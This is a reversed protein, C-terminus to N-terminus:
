PPVYGLAEELSWEYRRMAPDQTFNFSTTESHFRDVQIPARYSRVWLTDGMPGFGVLRVRVMTVLWNSGNYLDLRMTGSSGTATGTVKALEVRPLPTPPDPDEEAAIWQMGEVLTETRGTFRDTRTMVQESGFSTTGYRFRTPWVFLALVVVTSAVILTKLPLTSARIAPGGSRLDPAPQRVFPADTAPPRSVLPRPTVDGAHIIGVHQPAPMSGFFASRANRQLLAAVAMALFCLAAGLIASGFGPAALEGGGKVMTWIGRLVWAGGLFVTLSWAWPKRGKLAHAVFGAAILLLLPKTAYYAFAELDTHWLDAVQIIVGVFLLLPFALIGLIAIRLTGPVEAPPAPKFEPM